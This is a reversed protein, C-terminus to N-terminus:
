RFITKIKESVRSSESPIQMAHPWCPVFFLSGFLSFPFRFHIVYFIFFSRDPIFFCLYNVLPYFSISSSFYCLFYLASFLLFSFVLSIYSPFTYLAFTFSCFFSMLRLLFPFSIHLLSATGRTVNRSIKQGVRSSGQLPGYHLCETFNAEPGQLTGGNFGDLSATVRGCAWELWPFFACPHHPNLVATQEGVRVVGGDDGIVLRSRLFALPPSLPSETNM